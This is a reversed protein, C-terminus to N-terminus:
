PSAPGAATRAWEVLASLRRHHSGPWYIRGCGPCRQYAPYRGVVRAPLQAAVEAPAAASLLGGCALCRTFPTFRGALDFHRIVEALQRRPDTSRVRYGRRVVRRKLLDLDRTLLIRDEAAARVALPEDDARAQHSADFGLLRLYRALRGLHGDLAFRPEDAPPVHVPSIGSVDLRRFRPFAAVRDGDALIRDFGAPEGDVLILDIEPHPVGLSELADKVSGPVIFTHPFARQRQPEPLFDNLEGYCRIQASPVDPDTTPYGM